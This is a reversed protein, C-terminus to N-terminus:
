LLVTQKPIKVKQINITMKPLSLKAAIIASSVADCYANHHKARINYYDELSFLTHKHIHKLKENSLYLSDVFYNKYLPLNINQMAQLLFALDTSVHHGVFTKEKIDLQNLVNYIRPANDLEEQKLNTLHLIEPKVKHSLINTYIANENDIFIGSANFKFPIYALQIIQDTDPNLGSMELDLAIYTKNPILQHVEESYKEFLEAGRTKISPYFFQEAQYSYIKSM